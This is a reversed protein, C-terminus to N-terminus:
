IFSYKRIELQLQIGNSQFYVIHQDPWPRSPEGVGLEDAPHVPLFRSAQRGGQNGLKWFRKWSSRSSRVFSPTQTTVSSSPLRASLRPAALNAGKSKNQQFKWADNTPYTSRSIISLTIFLYSFVYPLDSFVVFFFFMEWKGRLLHKLKSQLGGRREEQVLPHSCMRGDEERSRGRCYQWGLMGRMCLFPWSFFLWWINTKSELPVRPPWFLCLIPQLVQGKGLQYCRHPQTGHSLAQSQTKPVPIDERQKCREIQWSNQM